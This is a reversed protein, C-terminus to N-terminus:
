RMHSALDGHTPSSSDTLTGAPVQKNTIEDEEQAHGEGKGTIQSHCETGGDHAEDHRHRTIVDHKESQRRDTKEVKTIKLKM